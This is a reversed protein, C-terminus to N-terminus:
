AVHQFVLTRHSAALANGAGVVPVAGPYRWSQALELRLQFLFALVRTPHAWVVCGGGGGWRWLGGGRWGCPGGPGLQIVVCVGSLPVDSGSAFDFALQFCRSQFTSMVGVINIVYVYPVTKVM